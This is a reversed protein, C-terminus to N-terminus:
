ERRRMFEVRIEQDHPRVSVARQALHDEAAHRAEHQGVGVQWDQHSVSQSASSRCWGPGSKHSRRGLPLCPVLTGISMTEAKLLDRQLHQLGIQYAYAFKLKVPSCTPM